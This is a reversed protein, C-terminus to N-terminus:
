SIPRAPRRRQLPVRLAVPDLDDRDDVNSDGSQWPFQVHDDVGSISVDDYCASREAAPDAAADVGITGEDQFWASPM